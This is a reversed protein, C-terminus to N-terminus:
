LSGKASSRHGGLSWKLDFYASRLIFQYILWLIYLNYCFFHQSDTGQTVM